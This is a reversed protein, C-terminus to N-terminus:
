VDVIQFIKGTAKDHYFFLYIHCKAQIDNKLINDFNLSM